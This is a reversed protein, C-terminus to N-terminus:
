KWADEAYALVQAVAPPAPAQTDTRFRMLLDDSLAADVYRIAFFATVLLICVAYQFIFVDACRHVKRCRGEAETEARSLIPPQWTGDEGDQPIEIITEEM